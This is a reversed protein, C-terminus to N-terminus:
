KCVSLLVSYKGASPLVLLLLYETLRRISLSFYTHASGQTLAYPSTGNSCRFYYEGVTVRDALQIPVGARVRLTRIRAVDVAIPDHLGRQYYCV